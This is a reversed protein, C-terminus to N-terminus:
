DIAGVNTRCSEMRLVEPNESQKYGALCINGRLSMIQARAHSDSEVGKLVIKWGMRGICSLGYTAAGPRVWDLPLPTWYKSTDSDMGHEQHYALGASGHGVLYFDFAPFDEPNEGGTTDVDVLVENAAEGPGLGLVGGLIWACMSPRVQHTVSDAWRIELAEVYRGVIAEVYYEITFQVPEVPEAVGDREIDLGHVTVEIAVFRKPASM